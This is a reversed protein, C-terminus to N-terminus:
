VPSARSYKFFNIVAIPALKVGLMDECFVMRIAANNTKRKEEEQNMKKCYKLMSPVFAAFASDQDIGTTLWVHSSSQKTWHRLKVCAVEFYM